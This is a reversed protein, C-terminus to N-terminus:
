IHAVASYFCILRQYDNKSLISVEAGTDVIFPITHNHVKVEIEPRTPRSSVAGVQM